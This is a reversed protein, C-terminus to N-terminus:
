LLTRDQGRVFNKIITNVTDILAPSYRYSHPSELEILQKPEAVAEYAAHLYEPINQTDYKGTVFLKPKTCTRLATTTDHTQADQLFSYPLDYRKQQPTRHDGPPLDRYFTVVGETEWEIDHMKPGGVLSMLAVFGSVHTNHAAALIAVSGGLSHGVLLTPKNGYYEIIENLAALYNTVTYSEISGPSEWSGPPDFALAHYGLEALTDVHATIHAYNKSELRGPLVVACQPADASGQEYLALEYSQTTISPM